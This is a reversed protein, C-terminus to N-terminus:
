PKRAVCMATLGAVRNLPLFPLEATCLAGLLGNVVPHHRRLHSHPERPGPRLREGARLVAAIPFVLGYSYCGRELELGAGRVLAELQALTYRRRHELYEDHTSWLFRFAPVSLLFRCARPVRAVYERLLAGDDDVHELVDMMLVLDADVADVARRFHVPRGAELEDSDAPYSPDVCWAEGAGASLLHRSFFGSGAGVDLIRAPAAPGLMRRLARAKSRYYWHAAVDAGLIELEKLDM